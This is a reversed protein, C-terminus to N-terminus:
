RRKFREDELTASNSPSICRAPINERKIGSTYTSQGRNHQAHAILIALPKQATYKVELLLLMFMLKM